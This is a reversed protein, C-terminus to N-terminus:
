VSHWIQFWLIPQKDVIGRFIVGHALCIGFVLSRLRSNIRCNCYRCTWFTILQFCVLPRVTNRRDSLRGSASYRNRVHSTFESRVPWKWTPRFTTRPNPIHVTSGQHCVAACEVTEEVHRNVGQVGEARSATQSVPLVTAFSRQHRNNDARLGAWYKKATGLASLNLSWSFM